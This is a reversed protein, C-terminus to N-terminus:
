LAPPRLQKRVKRLFTKTCGGHSAEYDMIDRTLKAKQEVSLHACAQVDKALEGGEHTTPWTPKAVAAAQGPPRHHSPKTKTVDRM